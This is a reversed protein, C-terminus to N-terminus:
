AGHPLLREPRFRRLVGARHKKQAPRKPSGESIMRAVRRAEEAGVSRWEAPIGMGVGPFRPITVRVRELDGDIYARYRLFSAAGDFINITIDGSREHDSPYRCLTGQGVGKFPSGDPLPDRPYIPLAETGDPRHRVSGRRVQFEAAVVDALLRRANWYEEGTEITEVEGVASIEREIAM